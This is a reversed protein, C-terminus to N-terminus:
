NKNNVIDVYRRLKQAHGALHSDFVLSRNIVDHAPSVALLRDKMPVCIAFQKEPRQTLRAGLGPPPNMGKRQHVVM